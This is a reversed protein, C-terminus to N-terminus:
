NAAWFAWSTGNFVALTSKDITTNKVYVMMGPAPNKIDDTSSVQPLVMAKTNSELVLVGKASSTTSGIVAKATPLETSTNQVTMYDTTANLNAKSGNSMDLWGRYDANSNSPAFLRVKAVTANNESADLLLTGPSVDTNSPLTRVYPLIIGKNKGSEFELLVATKKNMPATGTTGGIIVQSFGLVSM